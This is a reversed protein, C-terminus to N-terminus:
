ERGPDRTLQEVYFDKEERGVRVSLIVKDGKKALKPPMDVIQSKKKEPYEIQKFRTKSTIPLVLEKDQYRLIINGHGFENIRGVLNFNAHDFYPSQRMRLLKQSNKNLSQPINVEKKSESESTNNTESEPTNSSSFQRGWFFGFAGGVLFILIVVIILVGMNNM